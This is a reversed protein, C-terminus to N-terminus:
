LQQRLLTYRPECRKGRATQRPRDHNNFHGKLGGIYQGSKTEPLVERHAEVFERGLELL